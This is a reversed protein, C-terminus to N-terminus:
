RPHQWASTDATTERTDCLEHALRTKDVPQRRQRLAPYLRRVSRQLARVVAPPKCPRALCSGDGLGGVVAGLGLLRGARALAGAHCCVGCLHSGRFAAQSM